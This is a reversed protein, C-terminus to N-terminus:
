AIFRCLISKHTLTGLQTFRVFLGHLIFHSEIIRRISDVERGSEWLNGMGEWNHLQEYTLIAQEASISQKFPQLGHSTIRM